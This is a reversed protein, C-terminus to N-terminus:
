HQSPFNIIILQAVGQCPRVLLLQSKNHCYLILAGFVGLYCHNQTPDFTQNLAEDCSPFVKSRVRFCWTLRFSLLLQLLQLSLDKTIAQKLKHTTNLFFRDTIRM